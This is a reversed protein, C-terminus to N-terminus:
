EVILRLLDYGLEHILMAQGQALGHFYPRTRWLNM